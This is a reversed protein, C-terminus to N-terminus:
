EGNQDQSDNQISVGLYNHRQTWSVPDSENFMPYSGRISVYKQFAKDAMQEAESMKTSIAETGTTATRLWPLTNAVDRRLRRKRCIRRISRISRLPPVQFSSPEAM